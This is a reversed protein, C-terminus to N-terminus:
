TLILGEAELAGQLAAAEGPRVSLTLIGGGGHPSHRLQLDRVDIQSTELARGVRALEGPRDALAVEVAVVPPALERRAQGAEGLAKALQDEDGSEVAQAWAELRLRYSAIVETVPAANRVLLSAWLAPNSAAVRTLDRFSGSALALGAPHDMAERILAAALVQPLHSIVAVADDHEDAGMRVPNAGLLKVVEEMRDLDAKSVGDTILVWAAGRFLLASAAEPGSTERGAMPHGSVYHDLHTAAAPIGAKVGAVDTVLAETTLSSLVGPVSAPPGAVVVLDAGRIAEEASPAVMSFAELPGLAAVTEPSPDFGHVEWGAQKLGLAISTGILGTGLVGAQKM